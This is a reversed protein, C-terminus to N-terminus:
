GSLRGDQRRRRMVLAAAAALLMVLAITGVGGLTPIELPNPGGVFVTITVDDANNTTDPDSNDATVTAGNVLAGQADADVTVTVNCVASAGNALGGVNWTLNPDVFVGGCDDSVYTLGVPITDVVVVNTADGQGNNTVTLTYVVTDGPAPETVDAVKVIEVDAEDVGCFQIVLDDVYWGERNVVTTAFLRFDLTVAANGAFASLDATQQIYGVTPTSPVVTFVPAGNALVEGMDFPTFIEFWNFWSLEIPAALGSFDFTQSLLSESGSNPYCGNLNTGWVNVGSNAGPPEDEPVTDCGEFVGLVPAGWEWPAAGGGTWGGDDAEFDSSYFDIPVTGLPCVIGGINGVPPPGPQANADADLEAQEAATQALVAPAALVLLLAAIGVAIQRSSM